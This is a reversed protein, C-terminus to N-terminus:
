MKTIKIRVHKDAKPMPVLAEESCLDSPLDVLKIDGYEEILEKLYISLEKMTGNFYLGKNTIM